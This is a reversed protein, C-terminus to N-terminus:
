GIQTLPAPEEYLGARQREAHFAEIRAAAAAGGRAVMVAILGELLAVVAAHSQFFQPTHTPAVLLHDAHRALPSTASDTIGAITAGRAAALRVAAMTEARYPQFTLAVLLEDERIWALDDVPQSGHRPIPQIQEFAMRAVYWFQHALSYASGMGLVYVRPAAIIADALATVAEAAQGTWVAEVNEATAGAMGAMVAASGGEAELAALWEARDRFGGIGGSVVFDRFRARFAEWGEFGAARALRVLTNPHVEAQAALARMSQVGVERPHDIVHRAARQLQPSLADFGETLRSLAAEASGPERGNAMPTEGAAAAPRDDSTKPRM